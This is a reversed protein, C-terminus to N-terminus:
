KKRQKIKACTFKLMESSRTRKRKIIVSMLYRGKVLKKKFMFSRNNDLRFDKFQLKLSDKKYKSDKDVRFLYFISFQTGETSTGHKGQIFVGSKLCEAKFLHSEKLRDYTKLKAQKVVTQCGSLLLLATM